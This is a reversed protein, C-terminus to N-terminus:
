LLLNLSIAQPVYVMFCADEKGEAACVQMSRLANSYQCMIAPLRQNGSMILANFMRDFGFSRNFPIFSM